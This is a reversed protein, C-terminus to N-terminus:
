GSRRRSPAGGGSRGNEQSRSPSIAERRPAPGRIRPIVRAEATAQHGCADARVAFLGAAAGAMFVGDRTITGGNASWEVVTLPYPQGYQDHASCAFAVQEGSKVSAQEPRVSLGALRPPELLKVAGVCLGAVSTSLHLHSQLGSSLRFCTLPHIPQVGL